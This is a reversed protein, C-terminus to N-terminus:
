SAFQSSLTAAGNLSDLNATSGNEIRAMVRDAGKAMGAILRPTREPTETATQESSDVAVLLCILALITIFIIM